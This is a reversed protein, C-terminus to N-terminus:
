NNNSEETGLLIACILEDSAFEKLARERAGDAREEFSPYERSDIDYDFGAAVETWGKPNLVILRTKFLKQNSGESVRIDADCIYTHQDSGPEPEPKSTSEVEVHVQRIGGQVAWSDLPNGKAPTDM